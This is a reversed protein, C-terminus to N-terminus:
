GEWSGTGGCVCTLRAGFWDGATVLRGMKERGSSSSTVATRHLGGLLSDAATGPLSGVTPGVTKASSGQGASGGPFATCWIGRM